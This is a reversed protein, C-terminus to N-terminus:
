KSYFNCFAWIICFPCSRVLFYWQQCVIQVHTVCYVMEYVKYLFYFEKYKSGFVMMSGDDVCDLIRSVGQGMTYVIQYGTKSYLVIFGMLFQMTLGWVITIWSVRKKHKCLLFGLVLYGLLGLLSIWLHRRKEALFLDYIFVIYLVYAYVTVSTAIVLFLQLRGLLKARLQDNEVHQLARLAFPPLFQRMNRIRKKTADWCTTLFHTMKEKAQDVYKQYFPPLDDEDIADDEDHIAIATNNEVNPLTATDQLEVDAEKNTAKTEDDDEQKTQM